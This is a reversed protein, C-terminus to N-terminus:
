RRLRRAVAVETCRTCKSYVSKVEDLVVPSHLMAACLPVTPTFGDAVPGELLHMVGSHPMYIITLM